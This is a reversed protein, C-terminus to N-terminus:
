MDKFGELSASEILARPLRHCPSSIKRSKATTNPPSLLVSHWPLKETPVPILIGSANWSIIVSRWFWQFLVNKSFTHSMHMDACQLLTGAVSQQKCSVAILGHCFTQLMINLHIKGRWFKNRSFVNRCLTTSVHLLLQFGFDARLQVTFDWSSFTLGM